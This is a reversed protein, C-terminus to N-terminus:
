GRQTGHEKEKFTDRTELVEVSTDVGLPLVLWGTRGSDEEYRIAVMRMDWDRIVGTVTAEINHFERISEVFNKCRIRDGQYVSEAYAFLWRSKEQM